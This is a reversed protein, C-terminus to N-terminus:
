RQAALNSDKSDLEDNKFTFMAFRAGEEYRYSTKKFILMDKTEMSTPPGMIKEVQAKSMGAAVQDYNALTLRSGSLVNRNCGPILILLAICLFALSQIKRM